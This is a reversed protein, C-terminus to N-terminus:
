DEPEYARRMRAYMRCCVLMLWILAAEFFVGSLLSMWVAHQSYALWFSVGSWLAVWMSAVMQLLLPIEDPSSDPM